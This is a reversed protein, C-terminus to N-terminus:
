DCIGDTDTSCSLTGDLADCETWGADDTDRLMICGGTGGDITVQGVAAGANIALISPPTLTGIGVNGSSLITVRETPTTDTTGTSGAPNTFIRVSSSGTGSAIGSYLKLDGGNIDTSARVTTINVTCGSGTGGTTSKGTGTTYDSGEAWLVVKTVVGSAVEVVKAVGGTGGTSITLLDGMSYGTGGDTPAVNLASISGNVTAGGARINLNNGATSTTLNRDVGITQEVDNNLTLNYIPRRVGIGVNVRDTSTIGGLVMANDQLALANAGIATTYKANYGTGNYWGSQYGIFTNMYGTTLRDGAYYGIATNYDSVAEGAWATVGVSESSYYTGTFYFNTADVVTITYTGDYNKTGSVEVSDGTIYNHSSGTTIKVTGAVTGSYDAISSISKTNTGGTSVLEGLGHLSYYGFGSNGDGVGLVGVARQAFGANFSSGKILGVALYGLASNQYCNTCTELALAGIATNREPDTALRMTNKGIATNEWGIPDTAITVTRLANYGLVTNNVGIYQSQVTTAGDRIYEFGQMTSNFPAQRAIRITADTNNDSYSTTSNDAVTTVLYYTPFGAAASTANALSRYIKRGTIPTQTSTPITVTVRQASPSVTSSASSCATEGNTNYYTVCYIYSGTLAGAAGVALTPATPATIASYIVAGQHIDLSKLPATTGIGVNSGSVSIVSDELKPTSGGTNVKPVNGVTLTAAMANVNFLVLMILILLKKM